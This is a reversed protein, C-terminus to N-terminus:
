NKEWEGMGEKKKSQESEKREKEEKASMKEEDSDDMPQINLAGKTVLLNGYVIKKIDGYSRDEVQM